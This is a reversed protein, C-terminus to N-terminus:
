PTTTTTTSSTTTVGGLEIGCADAAYDVVRQAAPGVALLHAKKAALETRLGKPDDLHDRVADLIEDVTDRVREADAKIQSPAAKALRHFQDSGDSLQQELQTPSASGLDDLLSSLDPTAPLEACFKEQSGHDKSCGSAAAGVIALLVVIAALRPRL